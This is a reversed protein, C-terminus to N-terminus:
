SKIALAYLDGITKDLCLVTRDTFGAGALTMLFTVPNINKYYEETGNVDKRLPGGDYSSHPTRGETACTVLFCGSPKLAKYAVHILAPWEITHEFVETCLVLDYERDPTWQAANTYIYNDCKTPRELSMKEQDIVTWHMDSWFEGRVNGNVDRGGIDLGYGPQKHAYQSLWIRVGEHM